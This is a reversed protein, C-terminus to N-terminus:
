TNDAERYEYFPFLHFSLVFFSSEGEAVGVSGDGAGWVEWVEGWDGEVCVRGHAGWAGAAFLGARCDEEEAAVRCDPASRVM